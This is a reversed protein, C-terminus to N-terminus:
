VHLNEPNIYIFSQLLNKNHQHCVLSILFFFMFLQFIFHIAMTVYQVIFAYLDLILDHPM